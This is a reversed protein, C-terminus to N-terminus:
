CSYFHLFRQIIFIFEFFLKEGGFSINIALGNHHWGNHMNKIKMREDYQADLMRLTSWPYEDFDSKRFM